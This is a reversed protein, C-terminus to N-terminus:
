STVILLVFKLFFHKRYFSRIKLKFCLKYSDAPLYSLDQAPDMRCGGGKPLSMTFFHTPFLLTLPPIVFFGDIILRFCNQFGDMLKRSLRVNRGLISARQEQSITRIKFFHTTCHVHM